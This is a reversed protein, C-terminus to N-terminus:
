KAEQTVIGYKDVMKQALACQVPTWTGISLLMGANNQDAPYLRGAVTGRAILTVAERLTPEPPLKGRAMEELDGYPTESAACDETLSLSIPLDKLAQQLKGTTKDISDMKSMIREAMVATISGTPVLYQIEVEETQTLRHVRDEAQMITAPVWHLEVFMLLSAATLTTGTGMAAISGVICRVSPDTQFRDILPKREETDTDGHIFIAGPIAACLSEVIERHWAFVVVKDRTKLQEKIYDVATPIFARSVRVRNAMLSSIQGEVRDNLESMAKRWEAENGFVYSSTVRSRLAANEFDIAKAAEVEKGLLQELEPMEFEVIRRFKPPIGVHTISKDRTITGLLRMRANLEEENSSGSFDWAKKNGYITKREGGCYRMGFLHRDPFSKPWLWFLIPWLEIPSNPQPTGSAGIRVKGKIPSQLEKGRRWEGILAQTRLATIGKAMQTEDVIVMDWQRADIEGHQTVELQRTDANWVRKTKFRELIDFNVIVVDTGPWMSGRACAVTTENSKAMVNWRRWEARWGARLTAMCVILVTKARLKNAALACTITKGAGPPDGLLTAERKVIWDIASRQADTPVLGVPCEIDLASPPSTQSRDIIAQVMDMLTRALPEKREKSLQECRKVLRVMMPDEIRWSRTPGDWSGGLTRALRIYAEDYQFSLIACEDDFRALM